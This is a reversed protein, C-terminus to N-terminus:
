LKGFKDWYFERLIHQIDGPDELIRGLYKTCSKIYEIALTRSAPDGGILMNNLTELNYGAKEVLPREENLVIFYGANGIHEALEVKVSDYNHQIIIPEQGQVDASSLASFTSM